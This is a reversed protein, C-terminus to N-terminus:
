AEPWGAAGGQEAAPSLKDIWAVAEELGKLYGALIGNVEVPQILKTGRRHDLVRLFPAVDLGARAAVELCTGAPESDPHLGLVRLGGRFVALFTTLSDSLLATRRAPDEGVAIVARRFQLLKGMGEREAAMRLEAPEVAVGDVPVHGVLEVRSDLIDAYEMPFIDSSARWEAETLVLPPPHGGELWASVHRGAAALLELPLERVIVLVHIDAPRAAEREGVASGYVAVARLGDGFVTRLEEALSAATMRESSKRAMM